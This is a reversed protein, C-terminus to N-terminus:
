AELVVAGPEFTVALHRSGVREVRASFLVPAGGELPRATGLALDFHQGVALRVARARIEANVEDLTWRGPMLELEHRRGDQLTVRLPPFNPRDTPYM